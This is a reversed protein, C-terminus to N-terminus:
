AFFVDRTEFPNKIKRESIKSAYEKAEKLSYNHTM